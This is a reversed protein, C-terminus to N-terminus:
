VSKFRSDKTESHLDSVVLKYMLEHKKYKTRNLDHNFVFFIM